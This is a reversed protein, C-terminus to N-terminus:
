HLHWRLPIAFSLTWRTFLRSSPASKATRPLESVPIYSPVEVVYNSPSILQVGYDVWRRRENAALASRRGRVAKLESITPSATGAGAGARPRADSGPLRLRLRAQRKEVSKIEFRGFYSGSESTQATDPETSGVGAAPGRGAHM